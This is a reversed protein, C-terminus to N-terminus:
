MRINDTVDNLNNAILFARIERDSIEIDKEGDNFHIRNIGEDDYKTTYFGSKNHKNIITGFDFINRVVFHFEDIYIHQGIELEDGKGDRYVKSFRINQFENNKNLEDIKTQRRESLYSEVFEDRIDQINEVLKLMIYDTEKLGAEKIKKLSDADNYARFKAVSMRLGYSGNSYGIEIDKDLLTIGGEDNYIETTVKFGSKTKGTLTTTM